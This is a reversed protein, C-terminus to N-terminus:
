MVSLRVARRKELKFVFNELKERDRKKLPIFKIGLKFRYPKVQRLTIYAVKGKLFPFTHVKSSIGVISKKSVKKDCVIGIGTKSIDLVYGKANKGKGHRIDLFIKKM